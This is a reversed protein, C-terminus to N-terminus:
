ILPCTVKVRGAKLDVIAGAQIVTRLQSVEETDMYKKRDIAM